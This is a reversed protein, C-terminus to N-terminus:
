CGHRICAFAAPEGADRDYPRPQRVPDLPRGRDRHQAEVADDALEARDPAAAEREGIEGARDLLRELQRPHLRHREGDVRGAARRYLRAEDGATDAGQRLLVLHRDIGKALIDRRRAAIPEGARGVLDIGVARGDDARDAHDGGAEAERLHQGLEADLAADIGCALALRLEVRKKGLVLLVHAVQLLQLAVQM